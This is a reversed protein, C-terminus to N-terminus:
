GLSMRSRLRLRLAVNLILGLRLVLRLRNLLRLQTTWRLSARCLSAWGILRIGSLLRRIFDRAVTCGLQILIRTNCRNM